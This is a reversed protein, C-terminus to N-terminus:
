SKALVRLLTRVDQVSDGTPFPAKHAILRAMHDNRVGALYRRMVQSEHQKSEAVLVADIADVWREAGRALIKDLRADTLRQDLRAAAYRIEDNVIPFAQARMRAAATVFGLGLLVCVLTVTDGSPIWTTM